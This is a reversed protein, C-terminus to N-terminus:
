DEDEETELKEVHKRHVSALVTIVGFTVLFDGLAALFALVLIQKLGLTDKLNMALIILVIVFVIGSGLMSLRLNTKSDPKVYRDWIGEKLCMIVMFLSVIMFCIFEGLVVQKEKGLMMTIMMEAFILWYLLWFSWKEIRQLRQEQWEDLNKKKKFLKM